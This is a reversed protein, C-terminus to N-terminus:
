HKLSSLLGVQVISLNQTFDKQCGNIKTIWENMEKKAKEKAEDEELKEVVLGSKTDDAKEVKTQFFVSPLHVQM